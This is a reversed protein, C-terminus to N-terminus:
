PIGPLGLPNTASSGPLGTGLSELAKKTAKPQRSYTTELSGASRKLMDEIVKIQEEFGKQSTMKGAWSAPNTLQSEIISMDPGALAGLTYLDKVGMLLSTYKAQMRATDQGAPLFKAGTALKKGVEDKFEKLSGALGALQMDTDNFKAPADKTGRVPTGPARTGDVAPMPMRAPAAAQDLVSTMGPIAQTTPAPLRPGPMGAGPAAAPAVPAAQIGNPGYVVPTAVGTRTNVALLGSPDEQISMTPNAREFAFKQQALSLQGQSVGLQKQATTEGITATKDLRTPKGIPAGQANYTQREIYGGRDTDKTTVARQELKGKADLTKAIADNLYANFEEPKTMSGLLQLDEAIEEVKFVGSKVGKNFEAIAKQPSTSSGIVNWAAKLKKDQLDFTNKDIESRTKEQTLKAAETEARTKLISPIQSGGGRQALSPILKNYDVEGKDNLSSAYADTLANQVSEARKAANLQFRALEQAQQGGQIQQMQAYEAMANRPKFESQRFSMAIDPNVLAM